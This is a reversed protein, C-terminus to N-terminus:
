TLTDVSPEPGVPSWGEPWEQVLGRRVLNDYRELNWVKIPLYGIAEKDPTPRLQQITSNAQATASAAASAITTM